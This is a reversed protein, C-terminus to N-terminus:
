IDSKEEFQYSVDAAAKTLADTLKDTYKGEGLQKIVDKHQTNM